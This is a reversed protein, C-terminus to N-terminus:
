AVGALQAFRSLTMEGPYSQWSTNTMFSIAINFGLDPTIPVSVFRFLPEGGVLVSKCGM